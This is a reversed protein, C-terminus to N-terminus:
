SFYINELVKTLLIANEVYKWLDREWFGRFPNWPGWLTRMGCKPFRQEIMIFHYLTSNASDSCNIYHWCCWSFFFYNQFVRSFAIASWIELPGQHFVNMGSLFIISVFHLPMYKESVAVTYVQKVQSHSNIVLAWTKEGGKKKTWPLLPTSLCSYHWFFFLDIIINKICLFYTLFFGSFCCSVLFLM